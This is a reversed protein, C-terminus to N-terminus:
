SVGGEAEPLEDDATEDTVAVGCGDLADDDSSAEGGPQEAALARASGVNHPEPVSEGSRSAFYFSTVSTMLTGVLVLLQKALADAEPDGAQIVHVSFSCVEDTDDGPERGGGECAPVVAVIRTTGERKLAEVQAETLGTIEYPAAASEYLTISIISFLVVLSLALAARVSGRPLALAHATDTLSLRAFLTSVLALSGFLIMIGFIALIPLAFGRAGAGVEFYLGFCLAVVPIVILVLGAGVAGGALDASRRVAERVGEPVM